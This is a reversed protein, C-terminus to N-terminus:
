LVVDIYSYMKGRTHLRGLCHRIKLGEKPKIKKRIKENHRQMVAYPLSIPSQAHWGKVEGKRSGPYASIKGVDFTGQSWVIGWM